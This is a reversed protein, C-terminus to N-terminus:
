EGRARSLENDIFSIEHRVSKFYSEPVLNLEMLNILRTRQRELSKYMGPAAAMLNANAKDEEPSIRGNLSCLPKIIKHGKEAIVVEGLVSWEGKTFKTNM